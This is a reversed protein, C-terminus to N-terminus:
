TYVMLHFHQRQLSPQNAICSTGNRPTHAHHPIHTAIYTVLHTPPHPHTHWQAHMHCQIMYKQHFHHTLCVIFSLVNDYRANIQMAHCAKQQALVWVFCVLQWYGSLVCWSGTDLCFFVLQWCRSLVCWSGTGLCFVGAALVWVFLVLQWCRSLVCWSGTGLCFVSAALM